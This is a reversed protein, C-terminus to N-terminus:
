SFSFLDVFYQSLLDSLPRNIRATLRIMTSDDDEIIAIVKVTEDERSHNESHQISAEMHNNKVNTASEQEQEEIAIGDGFQLTLIGSLGSFPIMMDPSLLSGSSDLLQLHIRKEGPIQFVLLCHDLLQSILCSSPFSISEKRGSFVVELITIANVDITCGDSIFDSLRDEIGIPHTNYFFRM